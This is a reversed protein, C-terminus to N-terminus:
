KKSNEVAVRGAVEVRLEASLGSACHKAGPRALAQAALQAEKQTAPQGLKRTGGTRGTSRLNPFLDVFGWRM